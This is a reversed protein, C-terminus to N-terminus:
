SGGFYDCHDATRSMEGIECALGWCGRGDVCRFHIGGGQGKEAGEGEEQTSSACVEIGWENDEHTVAAPPTSGGHGGGRWVQPAWQGKYEAQGLAVCVYM